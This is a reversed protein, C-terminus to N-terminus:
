LIYGYYGADYNNIINRFVTEGHGWEWGDGLAEGGKLSYIESKTKNFVEALNMTELAEHSTPTHILMDFISFFLDKLQERVINWGLSNKATAVAVEDKLHKDPQISTTQNKPLSARWMDFYKPSIHSYHFSVEKIHHPQGAMDLTLKGRSRLLLFSCFLLVYM